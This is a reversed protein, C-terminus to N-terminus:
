NKNISYDFLKISPNFFVLAAPKPTEVRIIPLMVVDFEFQYFNNYDDCGTNVGVYKTLVGAGAFEVTYNCDLKLKFDFKGRRTNYFQEAGTSHNIIHIKTDVLQEQEDMTTGKLHLYGKPPTVQGFVCGTIFMLILLVFAALNSNKM